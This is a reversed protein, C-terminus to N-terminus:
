RPSQGCGMASQLIRFASEAIRFGSESITAATRRNTSTTTRVEDWENDHPASALLPAPAESRARGHSRARRSSQDDSPLASGDEVSRKAVTTSQVQIDICHPDAFSRAVVDELHAGNVRLTVTIEYDDAGARGSLHLPTGTAAARGSVETPVPAHCLGTPADAAPAAQRCAGLHGMTTRVDPEFRTLTLSQTM